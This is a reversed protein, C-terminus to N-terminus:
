WSLSFLARRFVRAASSLAVIYCCLFPTLQEVAHIRKSYMANGLPFDLGRAAAKALNPNDLKQEHDVLLEARTPVVDLM